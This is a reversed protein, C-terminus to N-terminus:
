FDAHEMDWMKAKIRMMLLEDAKRREERQRLAQKVNELEEARATQAETVATLTAMTDEYLQQTNTLQDTLKANEERLKLAEMEQSKLAKKNGEITIENARIVEQDEAYRQECQRLKEQADALQKELQMMKTEDMNKKLDETKLKPKPGMKVPREGADYRHVYERGYACQSECTRCISVVKETHQETRVMDCLFRRLTNMSKGAAVHTEENSRGNTQKNTQANM